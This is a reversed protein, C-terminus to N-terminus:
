GTLKGSRRSTGGSRTTAKAARVPKPKEDAPPSVAQKCWAWLQDESLEAGKTGLQFVGIQALATLTSNLLTTLQAPSLDKRVLGARSCSTVIKTLLKHHPDWIKAFDAPREIELSLNYITMVRGGVKESSEARSLFGRCFAELQEMPGDAAAVEQRIGETFQSTVNEYLALLLEDKGAFHQYFARLSLNSRDILTQITFDARGSEEVLELAAALFRSSRALARARASSLRREITREQWTSAPPELEADVIELGGNAGGTTGKKANM